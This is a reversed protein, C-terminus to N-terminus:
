AQNLVLELVFKSGFYALVLFIFGALTWRIATAGRWGLQHRGWLLVAFVCWAIISLVLKHSLHQAYLDEMYIIGTVIVGSLLLLGVWVIEFLLAEMTQLPPLRKLLRFSHIHKLKYDQFAIFVAQFAAITIISTALIALLIHSAVGTSYDAQPTYTSEMTTSLIISIVALPFLGLFLNDLPKKLSSLLVLVAISWSLLTAIKFFGFDPGEPTLIVWYVNLLHTLVAIVGCALVKHRNHRNSALNQSQYFSGLSYFIVAILGTLTAYM